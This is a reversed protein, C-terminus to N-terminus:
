AAGNEAALLARAVGAIQEDRDEVVDVGLAEAREVLEEPTLEAIERVLEILKAEDDDTPPQEAALEARKARIGEVLSDHKAQNSRGSAKVGIEAAIATLQDLTLDDLGDGDPDVAAPAEDVLADSAFVPFGNWLTVTGRDPDGIVLSAESPAALLMLGTKGEADPTDAVLYATGDTTRIVDGAPSSAVDAVERKPIGLLAAAEHTKLM